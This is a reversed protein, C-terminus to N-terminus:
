PLAGESRSGAGLHQAQCLGCRSAFSRVAALVTKRGFAGKTDESSRAHLRFGWALAM